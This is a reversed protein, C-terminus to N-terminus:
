VRGGIVAGPVAQAGRVWRNKVLVIGYLLLSLAAVAALMAALPLRQKIPEAAVGYVMEVHIWYVFLSSRGLTEVIHDLRSWVAALGAKKGAVHWVRYHGWAAPLFLMLLGLRVAFFAPSSGWFTAGAFVAPGHGALWGAGAGFAGAVALGAYLSRERGSAHGRALLDGMLVGAFLFGASPTLTFNTHGPTPQLYWRMPDPMWALAPTTWVLPTALTVLLTAGALVLLRGPGSPAVRWLWAGAVMSLGMVNLIDVTLLTVPDGWGLVLAQLRFLFALGFIQWGRRQLRRSAEGVGATRAAAEAALALSVGAVFLFLPAGLGAIFTIVWFPWAARDDVRTWADAVHSVVMILVALGRVWDLHPLRARGPVGAHAVGPPRAPNM